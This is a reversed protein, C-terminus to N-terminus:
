LNVWQCIQSHVDHNEKLAQQQIFTCIYIYSLYICEIKELYVNRQRKIYLEFTDTCIHVSHVISKLLKFCKKGKHLNLHVHYWGYCFLYMETVIVKVFLYTTVVINGYM